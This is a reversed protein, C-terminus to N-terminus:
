VTYYQEEDHIATFERDAPVQETRFFHRIEEIAGRLENANYQFHKSGNMLIFQDNMSDDTDHSADGHASMWVNFMNATGLAPIVYVVLQTNYIDDEEWLLLGMINGHAKYMWKVNGEYGQPLTEIEAQLTEVFLKAFETGKMEQLKM